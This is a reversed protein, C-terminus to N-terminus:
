YPLAVRGCFFTRRSCLSEFSLSPPCRRHRSSAFFSLDPFDLTLDLSAVVIKDGPPPLLTLLFFNARKTHPPFPLPLTQHRGSFPGALFTTSRASCSDKEGPRHAIFFPLCGPTRNSLSRFPEPIIRGRIVDLRSSEKEPSTHCPM